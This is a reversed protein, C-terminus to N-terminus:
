STLFFPWVKFLTDKYYGVNLCKIYLPVLFHLFSM